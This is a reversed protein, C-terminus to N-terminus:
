STIRDVENQGGKSYATSKSKFRYFIEFAKIFLVIEFNKKKGNETKNSNSMTRGLHSSDESEPSEKLSVLNLGSHNKM